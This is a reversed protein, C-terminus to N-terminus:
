TKSARNIQRNKRASTQKKKKRKNKKRLKIKVAILIVILSIVGAGIKIINNRQQQQKEKIQVEVQNYSDILTIAKQEHNDYSNYNAFFEQIDQKVQAYDSKNLVELNEEYLGVLKTVDDDIEYLSPALKSMEFIEEEVLMDSIAYLTTEDNDKAVFEIGYPLNDTGFGMPISIAPMGTVPSIAFSPSTVSASKITTIENKTTPYALVDVDYKDMQKEIYEEYEDHKAQYKNFTSISDNCVAAYSPLDQIYGGKNVLQKFSKVSSKTNKIYKNFFYCMTWGGITSSYYNYAKANYLDDIYVIQVGNEELKDITTNFLDLIVKATAKTARTYSLENDGDVFQSVVGITIKEENNKYETYQKKNDTLAELLIANDSTYKTMPGATDRSADYNIIGDSALLSYTPRLGVLNAASSPVRISSNTDTGIGAVAMGTSVAVATGGSSGYSTLTTDYANKVTGYSSRSIAASFAFESMNAKGIILAGADLLNQIITANQKPYNDALGKAGATTPMDVYDINDKVVIPIGFLMSTRGTQKYQEDLKKAQYAINENVSIIADFEDNYEKIRELYIKAITEYNIIGLDVAEQIETISMALIDIPSKTYEM